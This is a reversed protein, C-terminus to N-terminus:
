RQSSVSPRMRVKVGLEGDRAKILAMSSKVAGRESMLSVSGVVTEVVPCSKLM